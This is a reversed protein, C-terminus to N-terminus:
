DSSICAKYVGIEIFDIFNDIFTNLLSNAEQDNLVGAYLNYVQGSAFCVDIEKVLEPDTNGQYSFDTIYNFHWQEAGATNM